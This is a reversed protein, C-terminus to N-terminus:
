SVAGGGEIKKKIKVFIEIRQECGGQGGGVSVGWGSGRGGRGEGEGM